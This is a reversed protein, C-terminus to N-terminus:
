QSSCQQVYSTCHQRGAWIHVKGQTHGQYVDFEYLIGTTGARGWLKFGWPAPKNPIYQKLSSRGTLPVMIKDVANYEEQETGALNCQLASIWPRIKWLKDKKQESTVELNNVVHLCTMLKTFRNRSMTDSVPPYRSGNEWYCRVNPMQVLGMQFYMGIYQELESENTNVSAGSRQTSYLNTQEVLKKLMSKTFFKRFLAIPSDLGDPESFTRTFDPHSVELLDKKWSCGSSTSSAFSAGSNDLSLDDENDDEQEANAPSWEEDDSESLDSFDSMKERTSM